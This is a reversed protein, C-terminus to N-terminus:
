VETLVFVDTTAPTVVTLGTSFILPYDIPLILIFPNYYALLNIQIL